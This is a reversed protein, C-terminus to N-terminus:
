LRFKWFVYGDALHLFFVKSEEKFLSRKLDEFLVINPFDLHFLVRNLAVSFMNWLTTGQLHLNRLFLLLLKKCISHETLM